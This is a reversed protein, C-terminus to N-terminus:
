IIKKEGIIMKLTSVDAKQIPSMRCCLVASCKCCVDLFDDRLYRLIINLTKGDIVLGNTSLTDDAM